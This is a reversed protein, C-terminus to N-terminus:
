LLDDDDEEITQEEEESEGYGYEEESEVAGGDLPSLPEIETTNEKSGLGSVKYEELSHIVHSTTESGVIRIRAM